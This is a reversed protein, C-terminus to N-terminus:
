KILKVTTGQPGVGEPVPVLTSDYDTNLVLNPGKSLKLRRVVVATYASADAVKNNADVILNGQPLYVTGLLNRAKNSTIVFDAEASQRDQFFILGALPGDKPAEINVVSSSEFVFSADSGTFYIGVGAGDVQSASQVVFPGDKMVYVGPKLTVNSSSRITLGGCYVGPSLTGTFNQYVADREKCMGVPPSPRSSLPDSVAPCDTLPLKDFNKTAGSFGGASCTLDSVLKANGLSQLGTQSASNSYVACDPASLMANTDMSVTGADSEHLGIVCINSHNSAQATSKVRIQPSGQFYGIVFYGRHDQELTVTVQKAQADVKVQATFEGSISNRVNADIYSEVVAKASSESWGSLGGEKAAALAAADAASQLEDKHVIFSGMDIAGGTLGILMPALLAFSLAMNGQRCLLLKRLWRATM